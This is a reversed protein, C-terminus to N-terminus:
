KITGKERLLEGARKHERLYNIEMDNLIEEFGPEQRINDLLPWHKMSVVLLRSFTKKNDRVLSLYELAKEKEEMAAYVCALHSHSYYNQAFYNNMKIEDRAVKIAKKFHEDADKEMGNKLYVCGATMISQSNTYKEGYKMMYKYASPYDRLWVSNIMLYYLNDTHTSDKRYIRLCYDMAADFNGSMTEIENMISFYKISDNYLHLMQKAYGRAVEPYGMYTLIWCFQVLLAPRIDMKDSMVEEYGLFSKIANYYDETGLFHVFTFEYYESLNAENVPLKQFLENAKEPLGKLLYYRGKLAMAKWNKEDLSLAKDVMILGSDLYQEKIYINGWYAINRIYFDGLQTWADAFTSDLQISEQFLQKAKLREQWSQKLPQLEFLRKYDLGRLYLNYATLNVTPKKTIQVKEDRSIVAHLEDAVLLALENQVKFINELTVKREYPKSWLHKDTSTEILQLRIRITNNITQASGELIYNTHLEKAIEKISLKSNRYHEATTRSVVRLDKILSLKYLIEEMLGEIIYSYGAEPSDDIFPLVAISKEINVKSSSFNRILIGSIVLILIIIIASQIISKKGIRKSFVPEKVPPASETQKERNVEGPPFGYYDHFCKIFYTPASFGVLYAVESVSQSTEKLLEMAKNIRIERIFQSPSKDTISNIKQYLTSRNTRMEKALESVGFNEDKLNAETVERLRQM